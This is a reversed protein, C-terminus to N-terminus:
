EIKNETSKVARAYLSYPVKPRDKDVWLFPQALVFTIFGASFGFRREAAIIRKNWFERFPGGESNAVRFREFVKCCM